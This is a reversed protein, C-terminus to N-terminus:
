GNNESLRRAMKLLLERDSGSLSNYLRMFTQEPSAPSPAPQPTPTPSRSETPAPAPTPASSPAQAAKEQSTKLLAEVRTVLHNMDFPKIIVDDAGVDMEQLVAVENPVGTM